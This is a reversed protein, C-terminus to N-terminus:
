EPEDYLPRREVPDRPIATREQQHVIAVELERWRDTDTHTWLLIVSRFCSKRICRLLRDLHVASTETPTSVLDQQGALRDNRVRSGQDQDSPRDLKAKQRRLDFCALYCRPSGLAKDAPTQAGVHLSGPFAECLLAPIYLPAAAKWMESSQSPLYIDNWLHVHLGSLDPLPVLSAKITYLACVAAM